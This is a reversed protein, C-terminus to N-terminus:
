TFSLKGGWMLQMAVSGQLVSFESYSGFM